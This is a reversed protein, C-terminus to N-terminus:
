TNEEIELLFFVLNNWKDIPGMRNRLVVGIRQVSGDMGNTLYTIEHHFIVEAVPLVQLRLPVHSHLSHSLLVTAERNGAVLALNTSPDM